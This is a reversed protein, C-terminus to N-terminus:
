LTSLDITQPNSVAYTDPSGAECSVPTTEDILKYALWGDQTVGPQLKRGTVMDLGEVLGTSQLGQGNQYCEIQTASFLPTAATDSVNKATVNLVLCTEGTLKETGLSAGTITYEIGSIPAKTTSSEETAKIATDSAALADAYGATYGASYGDEYSGKSQGACATLGLLACLAIAV